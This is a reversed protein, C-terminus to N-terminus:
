ARLLPRGAVRTTRIQGVDRLIHVAASVLPAALILGVMGFLGGAALTAVLVVLPNLDLTAGFAIPQVVNQLLGNALLVVVLMILATSTGGAALALMVAFAGSVFAGVFPVYATVFTVVAITGALPVDLLVAGIGVVIGNFAAVITVGTFYRRLSTIVNGTITQAVPLPVGMNRDVWNRFLPGDKLLFFLSFVALSLGFVLSTLASIGGVVGTLLTSLAEPVTERLNATASEAGADDVGVDRLWGEVIALAENASQAIAERQAALGGLVLLLIVVGLALLGLLVLLAGLARPVRRRQLATVLPAAVTAIVLGAFAPVTITSTQDLIWVLGVVVAVVGVVLWSARGLDRLWRPPEFVSSLQREDVDDLSETALQAQPTTGDSVAHQRHLRLRRVLDM